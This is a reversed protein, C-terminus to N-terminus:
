RLDKFAETEGAIYRARISMLSSKEELALFSHTASELAKRRRLWSSNGSTAQELARAHDDAGFARLAELADPALRAYVSRFFGEFGGAAVEAELRRAAYVRRLPLPLELFAAYAPATSLRLHQRVAELINGELPHQDPPSDWRKLAM